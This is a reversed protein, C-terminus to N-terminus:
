RLRGPYELVSTSAGTIKARMRAPFSETLTQTEAKLDALQENHV